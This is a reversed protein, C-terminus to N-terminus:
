IFISDIMANVFEFALKEGLLLAKTTEPPNETVIFDDSEKTFEDFYKSMVRRFESIQLQEKTM